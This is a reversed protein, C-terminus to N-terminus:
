AMPNGSASAGPAQGQMMQMAAPMMRQMMEPNSMMQQMMAAMPNGAAPQPAALPSQAANGAPAAAAAAPAAAPTPAPAGWPNPLAATNRSGGASEAYDASVGAPATGDDGGATMAAYLPDAVDEHARRLASHGGPMVDLNGLARDSNRMMERMLSPNAAMRMSQQVMDNQMMQTMMGPNQMMRQQAQQMM